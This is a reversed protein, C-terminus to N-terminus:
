PKKEVCNERRKEKPAQELIKTMGDTGFEPIQKRMEALSTPMLRQSWRETGRSLDLINLSTKGHLEERQTAM